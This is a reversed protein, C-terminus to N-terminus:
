PSPVEVGRKADTGTETGDEEDETTPAGAGGEDGGGGQAVPVDYCHINTPQLSGSGQSNRFFDHECV